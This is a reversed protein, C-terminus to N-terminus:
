FEWTLVLSGKKIRVPRHLPFWRDESVPAVPGNRVQRVGARSRSKAITLRRRKAFVSPPLHSCYGRQHAAPGQAETEEDTFTASALVVAEQETSTM